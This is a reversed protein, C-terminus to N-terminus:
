EFAERAARERQRDAIDHHRDCLLELDTLKENKFRDYTRHHVSLRGPCFMGPEARECRNGARKKVLACLKKWEPSQIYHAYAFHFEPTGYIRARREKDRDRAQKEQDGALLFQEEM